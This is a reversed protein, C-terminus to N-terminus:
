LQGSLLYDLNQTCMSDTMNKEKFYNKEKEKEGKKRGKRKKKKEKKAVNLFKCGNKTWPGHSSWAVNPGCAM